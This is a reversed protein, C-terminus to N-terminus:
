IFLRNCIVKCIDIMVLIRDSFISQIMHWNVNEKLVSNTDWDTWYISNNKYTFLKSKRKLVVDESGVPRKLKLIMLEGIIKM